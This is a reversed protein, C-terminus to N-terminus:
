FDGKPPIKTKQYGILGQIIWEHCRRDNNSFINKALAIPVKKSAATKL